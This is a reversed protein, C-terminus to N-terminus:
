QEKVFKTVSIIGKSNILSVIYTGNPLRETSLETKNTGKNANYKKRLLIKGNMDTIDITYGGSEQATFHLWTVSRAPNPAVLSSMTTIELIETTKANRSTQRATQLTVSFSTAASLGCTNQSKVTINGAINGWKVVTNATGQGSNIVVQNPFNWTYSIGSVPSVVAYNINQQQALVSAPGNIGAPKAPTNTLARVLNVSSGCSNSASVKIDGSTFQTTTTMTISTTGNGSLSTGAPVIWNYSTATSVPDISFAYSGANCIGIADAAPSLIVAPKAPAVGTGNAVTVVKSDTCGNADSVPYTVPGTGATFTGTGTYPLTGGTATITVTTTSNKCVMPVYSGDADLVAPETVTYTKSTTCGYASAIDVTYTGAGIGSIDQTVLTNAGPGSWDYAFTGMGGTTTVDIAGTLNGNCNINTIVATVGPSSNVCVGSVSVYITAAGGGKISISSNHNGTSSPNYKVYINQAISSGYGTIKVSDTYTGNNTTSFKFNNLPGVTVASGNLGSGNLTFSKSSTIGNICVTDFAPLSSVSTTLVNSQVSVALTTNGSNSCANGAKVTVNGGTNGWNILVASSGQGSAVSSGSPSGWTYTLGAVATTNYAVGQQAPVVSTLGSIAAPKAPAKVIIDVQYPSSGCGNNAIVRVSDTNIGAPLNITASPQTAGSVITAGNPILWTYSTATAVAAISFDFNGGGCVGKADALTGDIAGPKLPAVGTGNVVTLTKSATCGNADTVPYTSQGNPATFTGTGTYPLTGGTATVYVSTTSNKCVMPDYTADPVLADPESVTSAASVTCGYQSTVTLTYTGDALGSINKNTSNYGAPGSWSYTFTGTGGITTINISGNDANKCTSNTVSSSLSPRSNAGQGSVSVSVSLVGGGRNNITSNITGTASPNFKVYVVQSLSTGYGSIILSDNYAGNATTSFKFDTSPGVIVPDGSLGSGSLTYSKSTSLMNTCTIDFAPLSSVTTNLSGTLVTINLTTKASTGCTNKSAATVKGDLTGWNVTIASSNGGGTIVAGSNATWNYTLGPTATVSYNIGTQSPLVSSPGSIFAPKAPINSFAKAFYVSTGCVNVAAVSINGSSFNAPATAIIQAGASTSSTINFNNPLNWTYSTATAVADTSFTYSGGNCIGTADASASNIVLPKAPAVGTGNAVTITEQDTCGNADTVIYTNVGPSASYTGIGSYPLTGGTATVYLNTTTNKCIMSDYNLMTTLVVPQTVTFSQSATCGGFSGVTVTYNGPALGNLDQTTITNVGPGAWTYTFSNYGGTTSVDITGNKANNCTINTVNGSIAPSSNIALGSVSVNTGSAGGGTVSISGNTVGLQQPNFKVFVNQSVSSGYGSINLESTYTGNSTTSFKFGGLPGITIDTGNLGVGNVTFSKSLSLSNVCVSDFQSLIGSSTTLVLSSVTVSIATGGSIGCANVAKANVMGNSNGWNVTIASTGGGAVITASAPITWDYTVGSVGTTTYVVGQESPLVTSPGNIADPKGPIATLVKFYSNVSNGCTNRSWVRVSDSTTIGSPIQITVQSSDANGSIMNWGNPRGWMYSSADAVADVTFSFTGGGCIGRAEADAASVVVPKLPVEALGNAINLTKQDTCGKADTVPFQNVGPGAVFNGTGTYPLNGGTASVTVTTTTNKCYMASDQTATVNLIDPQTITFTDRMICNAASTLVSYYTGPRLSDVIANVSSFLPYDPSSWIFGFPGTGNQLQLSINGNKYNNCTVNNVLKTVDPKSNLSSATIAVGFPNVDACQVPIDGDFSATGTASFKIYITKSLSTGYNNITVSDTFPGAPTTSIKFGNLPGLKIDSGNLFQGYLTFSKSETETDTCVTGFSPVSTAFLGINSASSNPRVLEVIQFIVNESGTNQIYFDSSNSGRNGLYADWLTVSAKKWLNTNTCTVSISPKDSSDNADYYLQWSGTGNDLYIVDITVPYQANLPTNNLFNNDLDFYLGNKGNAVDFGRAFRGYMTLTDASTVNWYGASTANANIQTLYREYNGPFIKWGVDNTGTADLNDQETLTARTPDELLAGYAAFANKISIYRAENYRTAAGYTGAPFRTTNSADLADKLYCMAYESTAPQKSGAYRNYYSFTSDFYADTIFDNRQNSWDVGWHICYSLLSFMNKYKAKTWWGASLADGIIESRARIYEGNGQTNNLLPFLWASKDTEDNFQYGKGLSGTKIWGGPCNQNLWNIETSGNNGPNSLLTIKPNTNQYAGYMSLSFEHFLSDFGDPSISYAPDVTGKYAIYDGTSGFCGQIGVVHNRLNSPLTAIYDRVRTIMRNFYFKYETGKYYPSFGTVVNNTSEFVKPVGYDYIWDPAGDRTYILIIIPLGNLTKDVLENYLSDWVWVDPAVELDKWNVNMLRGDIEPYSNKDYAKAFTQWIGFGKDVNGSQSKATQAITCISVITVLIIPNKM